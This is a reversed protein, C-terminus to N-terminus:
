SSPLLKMRSLQQAFRIATGEQVIRNEEVTKNQSSGEQLASLVPGGCM